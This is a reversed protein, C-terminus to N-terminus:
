KKPITYDKLGLSLAAMALRIKKPVPLEGAEYRCLGSRTIGLASAAQEQTLQMIEKRWKVFESPRM